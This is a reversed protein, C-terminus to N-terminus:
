NPAQAVLTWNVESHFEGSTETNPNTKMTVGAGDWAVVSTGKKDSAYFTREDNSLTMTEKDSAQKPDEALSNRVQSKPISVSAGDLVKGSTNKFAAQQVKVAWGTQEKKRIDTVQVYQLGKATARYNGGNPNVKNNGFDFSTPIVDLSLPVEQGTPKNRDNTPDDKRPQSPNEPDVPNMTTATVEYQGNEWKVKSFDYDANAKSLKQKGQDTIKVEYTGIDILAQDTGVITYDGDALTTAGKGFDVTPQFVIKKGDYKKSGSSLKASSPDVIYRAGSRINKEKLDMGTANQINTKGQDSLSVPYVNVTDGALAQPDVTVDGDQLTYSGSSLTLQFNKGSLKNDKQGKLGRQTGSIEAFLASTYDFVLTDTKSDADKKATLATWKAIKPADITIGKDKLTFVQSDAAKFNAANEDGAEARTKINIPRIAAQYGDAFAQGSKMIKSNSQDAANLPMLKVTDDNTANYSDYAVKGVPPLQGNASKEFEAQAAKGGAEYSKNANDAEKNYVDVYVQRYIENVDGGQLLKIVLDKNAKLKITGSNNIVNVDGAFTKDTKTIAAVKEGNKRAHSSTDADIMGQYAANSSQLYKYITVYDAMQYRDAQDTGKQLDGPREFIPAQDWIQQDNATPNALFDARAQQVATYEATFLEKIFARAGNPSRTYNVLGRRTNPQETPGLIAKEDSSLVENPLAAIIADVNVSGDSDKALTPNAAQKIALDMIGPLVKNGWANGSAQLFLMVNQSKQDKNPASYPDNINFGSIGSYNPQNGPDYPNLQAQLISHMGAAFERVVAQTIGSSIGVYLGQAIESNINAELGMFKTMDYLPRNLKLADGFQAPVYPDFDTGNSSYGNGLSRVDSLAQKMVSNQIYGIVINFYMNLSKISSAAQRSADGNIGPTAHYDFVAGNRGTVSDSSGWSQKIVELGASAGQGISTFLNSQNNLDNTSYKSAQMVGTQNAPDEMQTNVQQIYKQIESVYDNIILGYGANYDNMDVPESFVTLGWKATPAQGIGWHISTGDNPYSVAGKVGAKDATWLPRGTNPDFINNGNGQYSSLMTLLKGLDALQIGLLSMDLSQKNMNELGSKADNIGAKYSNSNTNISAEASEPEALLETEEAEASTETTSSETTSETTTESTKEETSSTSQSEEVAKSAPQEVSSETTTVVEEAATSSTQTEQLVAQSSTTKVEGFALASDLTTSAVLSLTGLLYIAKKM